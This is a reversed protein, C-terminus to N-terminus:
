RICPCPIEKPRIRGCELCLASSDISVDFAVVAATTAHEFEAVALNAEAVALNKKRQLAILKKRQVESIRPYDTKNGSKKKTRRTARKPSSKTM